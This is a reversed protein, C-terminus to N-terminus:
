LLAGGHVNLAAGTIYEARESALFAVAEAVERPFATRGLPIKGGIGSPTHDGGEVYGPCVANVRIGYQAETRALSKTLLIVGSKAIAYPLTNPTARAVEAHMSAIQILVGHGQDRMHPLIERSCLFASTLNSDLVAKWEALSTDAFPKFQFSGVNNVWVDIPGASVATAVLKRVQREDRVDARAAEAHIGMQTLQDLCEGASKEDSRYNLVVRYGERGLAEAIARGIGRTGGTILARRPRDM